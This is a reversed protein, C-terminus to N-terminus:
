TKQEINLPNNDKDMTICNPFQGGYQVLVHGTRIVLVIRTLYLVENSIILHNDEKDMM